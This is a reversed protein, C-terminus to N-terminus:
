AKVKTLERFFLPNIAHKFADDFEIIGKKYLEALSADLSSFEETGGEMQSRIQHLKGERIFNSVRYSNAFKETAIVVGKGDRRPILRQALSLVLAEALLMLVMNQQNAPFMNIIIRIIATSDAANMTSLVLHGTRAARLAIEFSEM